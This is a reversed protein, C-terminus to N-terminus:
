SHMMVLERRLGPRKRSDIEMQMAKEFYKQAEHFWGKERFCKSLIRASEIPRQGNELAIQLQEIAGDTFGMERCVKGMQFHFEPYAEEPIVAEQLEKFIEEFGFLKETSIEKIERVDMPVAGSLEAGLDFFMGQPQKDGEKAAETKEEVKPRATRQSVLPASEEKAKLKNNTVNAAAQGKEESKQQSELQQIIDTIEPIKERRGWRAYHKAVSKYQSTAEGLQGMNRYIEAMKLTVQVLHPNILLVHKYVAISQPFLNSQFFIEAAQLYKCIAKDELGKGQYMGALKLQVTPNDPYKQSLALLPALEDEGDKEKTHGSFYGLLRMFGGRNSPKEAKRGPKGELGPIPLGGLPVIGEIGKWSIDVTAM